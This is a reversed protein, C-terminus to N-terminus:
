EVIAAEVVTAEHGVAHDRSKAGSRRRAVLAGGHKCVCDVIGVEAHLAWRMLAPGVRGEPVLGCRTVRRRLLHVTLLHIRTTAHPKRCRGELLLLLEAATRRREGRLRLRIEKLLRLTKRWPKGVKSTTWRVIWRLEDADRTHLVTSQMAACRELRVEIPERTAIIHRETTGLKATHGARLLQVIRVMREARERM